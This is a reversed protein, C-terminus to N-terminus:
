GHARAEKIDLHCFYYPPFPGVQHIEFGQSQWGSAEKMVAHSFGPRREKPVLFAMQFVLEKGQPDDAGHVPEAAASAEAHLMIQAYIQQITEDIARQLAKEELLKVRETLLYATGQPLKEIASQLRRIQPDNQVTFAELKGRNVHARVTWEERDKLKGLLERIAEYQAKLNEIVAEETRFFAGWKLPIVTCTKMVRELVEEQEVLERKFWELDKLHEELVGEGFEEESVRRALCAVKEYPIIFIGKGPLSFEGGDHEVFGYLQILIGM